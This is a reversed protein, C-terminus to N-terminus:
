SIVRKRLLQALHSLRLVRPMEPPFSSSPYAALAERLVRFSGPGVLHVKVPGVSGRRRLSKYHPSVEQLCHDLKDRNEESLNRLGRLEMFVEYHPASGDCSDLIGSEVCAYDLLKAGPWQGVAQALAASFTNEDTVEGRVSLTQGLRRTFRVVPCQNYAGVVQVVDGLRCRTLGAHDTLVLEYEEERQVDTLLLTSTAEEQTGEKFPLLEIFPVGPPLLYSGQPQEPWLNLAMVGGSAAYAPYFFALGQCWLAKLAAVAEAQGGADLTVVVQLKPWLRLALGRPGQELAEQLEAARSPLPTGLKGSAIAEALEKGDAELGVFVDLLEVATRAELARLGPFMLAELLLTRPDKAGLPSVRGLAHRLWPVSGPWPSPPTVCASSGPTLVEPYAKNLTVLGLLTAQLSAEGHYQPSAPPLLEEKSEEQQVQSTKTLPLQNRFTSMDTIGRPLCYPSQARKLCWTLAQQQSQGVRLTSQELKRQQCAAEWALVRWAVQHRLLILWSPRQQWLMALLPLLLLLWLLLM